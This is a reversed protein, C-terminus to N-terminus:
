PGSSVANPVELRTGHQPWDLDRFFQTLIGKFSDLLALQCNRDDHLKISGACTIQASVDWFMCIVKEHEGAIQCLASLLEITQCKKLNKANQHM